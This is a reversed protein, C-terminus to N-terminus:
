GLLRLGKHLFALFLLGPMRRFQIKEAYGFSTNSKKRIRSILQPTCSIKYKLYNKKGYKESFMSKPDIKNNHIATQSITRQRSSAKGTCGCRLNGFDDLVDGVSHHFKISRFDRIIGRSIGEILLDDDAGVGDFEPNFVYGREELFKRNVMPHRPLYIDGNPYKDSESCRFDTFKLIFPETGQVKSLLKVISLDWNADPLLDDAIVLILEGTAISAAANWNAVASVKNTSPTTIFKSINDSTVGKSVNVPISYSQRTEQDEFEFALCHEVEIQNSAMRLWYDRLAISQQGSYYSAHILSIRM